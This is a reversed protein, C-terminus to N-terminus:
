RSEPGLEDRLLTRHCRKEDTNEYCVLVVDDGAALRERLDDMAERADPSTALHRRYRADFDVADWAENHAARDSRGEDELTSAHAKFEDLLDEPPALAPRNEDVQGHFWSHPRRVVGVLQEDGALDVKDHQIAAVYTDRVRGRETM